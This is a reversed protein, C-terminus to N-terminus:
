PWDKWEPDTRDIPDIGLARFTVDLVNRVVARQYGLPDTRLLDGADGIM